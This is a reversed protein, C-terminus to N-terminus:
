KKIIDEAEHTGKNGGGILIEEEDYELENGESIKGDDFDMMGPSENEIGGEFAVSAVVTSVRGFHNEM